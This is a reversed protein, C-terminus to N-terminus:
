FWNGMRAGPISVPVLIHRQTTQGDNPCQFGPPDLHNELVRSWSVSSLPCQRDLEKWMEWNYKFQHGHAPKPCAKRYGKPVSLSEQRWGESRHAM